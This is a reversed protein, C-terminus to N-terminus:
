TPSHLAIWLARISVLGLTESLWQTTMGTQTALTRSRPGPGKRSLATLIATHTATGLKLLERVKPRGSRGPQWFCRRRRLWAELKPLPRYYQSRGFYQVWGRLYANLHRIRSAM